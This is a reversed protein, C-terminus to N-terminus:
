VVATSQQRGYRASLDLMEFTTISNGKRKLTLFDIIRMKNTIKNVIQNEGSNYNKCHFIVVIITSIFLKGLCVPRLGSSPNVYELQPNDCHQPSLRACFLFMSIFTEKAQAAAKKREDTIVVISDLYTTTALFRPIRNTSNM